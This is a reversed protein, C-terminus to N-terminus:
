FICACPVKSWGVLITEWSGCTDISIDRVALASRDVSIGFGVPSVAPVLVASTVAAGQGPAAAM